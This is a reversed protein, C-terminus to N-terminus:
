DRSALEEFYVRIEEASFGLKRLRSRLEGRDTEGKRSERAIAKALAAKREEPGFISRLAAKAIDEAIGRSRLGSLLKLPSQGGGGQGLRSRLWAEAFRRDSLLGEAELHDLGLRVARPSLGKKELKAGLLYRTQEARAILSAAQREAETADSALSLSAMGEEDLEMGPSLDGPDLGCESLFVSRALFSSGGVTIKVTGSARAEVSEIRRM